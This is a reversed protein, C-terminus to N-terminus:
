WDKLDPYAEDPWKGGCAEKLKSPMQRGNGLVPHEPLPCEKSIQPFRLRPNKELLDYHKAVCSLVMTNPSYGYNVEPKNSRFISELSVLSSEHGLGGARLSYEVAMPYNKEMKLFVSIADASKAKGQRMACVHYRLGAVDDNMKYIYHEGLMYQADASGLEAAKHILEWGVKESKPDPGYGKLRFIGMNYWGIPANLETLDKIYLYARMTNKKVGLGNMYRYVMEAKAKWHGNAAAQYYMEALNAEEADTRMFKANEFDRAQTYIKHSDSNLDLPPNHDKEFACEFSAKTTSIGM